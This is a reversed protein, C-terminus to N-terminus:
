KATEPTVQDSVVKWGVDTFKRLVILYTGTAPYAANTVEFRGSVKAADEGLLEIEVNSFQLHGLQAGEGYRRAYSERLADWGRVVTNVSAYYLRPDRWFYDLYGDLDGRSWADAQANMVAEIAATENHAIM